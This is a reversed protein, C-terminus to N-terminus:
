RPVRPREARGRDFMGALMTTLAGAHERPEGARPAGPSRFRDLWEAPLPRQGAVSAATDAPLGAQALCLLAQSAPLSNFWRYGARRRAAQDISGILGVRALRDEVQVAVDM